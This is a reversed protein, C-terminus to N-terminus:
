KVLAFQVKATKFANDLENISKENIKDKFLEPCEYYLVDVVKCWKELLGRQVKQRIMKLDGKKGEVRIAVRSLHPTYDDRFPIVFIDISSKKHFDALYKMQEYDYIFSVPLQRYIGPEPFFKHPTEALGTKNQIIGFAADEGNGIITGYTQDIRTM